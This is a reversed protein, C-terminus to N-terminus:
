GEISQNQISSALTPSPSYRHNRSLSTTPTAYQTINTKSAISEAISKSQWRHFGVFQSNYTIFFDSHKQQKQQKQETGPGTQFSWPKGVSFRLKHMADDRAQEPNWGAHGAMMHALGRWAASGKGIV